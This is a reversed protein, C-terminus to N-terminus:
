YDRCKKASSDLDMYVQTVNSGATSVQEHARRQRSGHPGIRIIDSIATSLPSISFTVRSKSTSMGFVFRRLAAIAYETTSGPNQPQDWDEQGEHPHSGGIVCGERLISGEGAKSTKGRADSYPHSDLVFGKVIIFTGEFEDYDVDPNGSEEEGALDVLFGSMLDDVDASERLARLLSDDIRLREIADGVDTHIPSRPRRLPTTVLM